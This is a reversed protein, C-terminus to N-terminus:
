TTAKTLSDKVIEMTMTHELSNIKHNIATILYYGSYEKDEKSDVTDTKAGAELAPYSFYLVRGVEVDTRGPVTINMKINNLDLMSSRRNGYIVPMKENVNETFNDFLKPNIPYYSIHTAFNRLSDNTFVPKSTFGSGSSHFQKPYERVYDYDTVKYEKNYVDLTILRSALYGNTYNKIHDTTEVM